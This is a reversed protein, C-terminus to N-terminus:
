VAPCRGQGAAFTLADTQGRLQPAVQLADAVNQVFGRDTQVGAVVTTEDLTERFEFVLPVGHEDDFVVFVGDARCVMDDVDARAGTGAAAFQEALPRKVFEHLFFFADCAFHEAMRRRVRAAGSAGDGFSRRFEFDLARVKVVQFFNIHGDGQPTEYNQRPNGAGPFRRERVFHNGGGDATRERAEPTVRQAAGDATLGERPHIVKVPEEFDVLRRDAFRRTRARCGVHFEGVADAVDKGGRVFGFGAAVGRAAERKIRFDAAAGDAVTLALYAGFHIEERVDHHFAFGTVTHTKVILREGDLPM